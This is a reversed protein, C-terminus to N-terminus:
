VLIKKSIIVSEYNQIRTKEGEQIKLGLKVTDGIFFNPPNSKLYNSELKSLLEQKKISM